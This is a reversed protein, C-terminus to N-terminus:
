RNTVFKILKTTVSPTKQRLKVKVSPLFVQEQNASRVMGVELQNKEIKHVAIVLEKLNESTQSKLGSQKHWFYKSIM